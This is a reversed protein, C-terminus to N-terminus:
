ILLFTDSYTNSEIAVKHSKPEKYQFICSAGVNKEKKVVFTGDDKTFTVYLYVIPIKAINDNKPNAVLHKFIDPFILRMPSNVNPIYVM